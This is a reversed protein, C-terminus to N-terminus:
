TMSVQFTKDNAANPTFKVYWFSPLNIQLDSVYDCNSIKLSNIRVNYKSEREMTMSKVWTHLDIVVTYLLRNSM